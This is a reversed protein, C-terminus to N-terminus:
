ACPGHGLSRNFAATGGRPISITKWRDGALLKSLLVIQGTHYGMHALSRTLAQAVTHPQSRITVTRALDDPRLADLSSLLCAWGREWDAFVEARDRRTDAFEGDRDRWPKEGDTTLFDTFRSRLNGAVHKMVVEVSNFDPAIVARLQADDLQSAARESTTKQSRFDHIFAAIAAAAPDPHM